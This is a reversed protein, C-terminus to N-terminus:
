DIDWNSGDSIITISEYRAALVATLGGDITENANGEVIVSKGSSGVNKIIYLRGVNAAAPPLTVVIQKATTDCRVKTHLTTLTIDDTVTAVNVLGMGATRTSVTDLWVLGIAPTTPAVATVEAVGSNRIRQGTNDWPAVLPVTGDAKVFDLSDLGDLTDADVKPHKLKEIEYKFRGCDQM